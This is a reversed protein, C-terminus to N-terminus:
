LPSSGEPIKVVSSTSVHIKLFILKLVRTFHEWLLIGHSLEQCKQSLGAIKSDQKDRKNQLM